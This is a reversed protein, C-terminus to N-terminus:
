TQLKGPIVALFHWLQAEAWPPLAEKDQGEVDVFWDRM